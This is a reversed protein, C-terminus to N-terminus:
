HILCTKFPGFHIHPIVFLGKLKKSKKGRIALYQIKVYLESLESSELSGILSARSIALFDKQFIIPTKTTLLRIIDIM